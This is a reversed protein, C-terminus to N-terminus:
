GLTKIQGRLRFKGEQVLETQLEFDDWKIGNNEFDFNKHLEAKQVETSK